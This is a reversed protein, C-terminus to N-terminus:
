SPASSGPSTGPRPDPGAGTIADVVAGWHAAVDPAYETLTVVEGSAREVTVRLPPGLEVALHVNAVRGGGRLVAVGEIMPM